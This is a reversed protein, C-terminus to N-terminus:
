TKFKDLARKIDKIKEKQRGSDSESIKELEAVAMKMGDVSNRLSDTMKDFSESLAKIEDTRRTTFKVTLDGSTVDQVCHDMRHLPGAIRHSTFLTVIITALGIFISVVVSSLLVAPLIFEATSKIRLRSNEFTTTVTSMSMLYVIVGSIVTGLVVLACFKLIFESQFRKKIFYKHRRNSFDNTM